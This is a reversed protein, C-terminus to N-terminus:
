FLFEQHCCWYYSGRSYFLYKKYM